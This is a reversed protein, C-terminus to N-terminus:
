TVFLYYRLLLVQRLLGTPIVRINLDIHILSFSRLFLLLLICCFSVFTGNSRIAVMRQLMNQKLRRDRTVGENSIQM